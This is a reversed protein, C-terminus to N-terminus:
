PVSPQSLSPRVAYLGLFQIEGRTYQARLHGYGKGKYTNIIEDRLAGAISAGEKTNAFFISGEWFSPFEM